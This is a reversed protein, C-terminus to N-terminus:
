KMKGLKKRLTRAFLFGMIVMGTSQWADAIKSAGSTAKPLLFCTGIPARLPARWAMQKTGARLGFGRHAGNVLFGGSRRKYLEKSPLASAGSSAVTAESPLEKRMLRDIAMIFGTSLILNAALSLVAVAVAPGQMGLGLSIAIVGAGVEGRPCM